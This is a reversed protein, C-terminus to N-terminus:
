IIIDLGIVFLKIAWIVMLIRLKNMKDGETIIGNNSTKQEWRLYVIIDVLVTIVKTSISIVTFLTNIEM